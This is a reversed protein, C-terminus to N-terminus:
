LSFLLWAPIGFGTLSCARGGARGRLAVSIRGGWRLTLAGTAEDAGEELWHAEARALKRLHLLATRGLQGYSELAFPVARWLARGVLYRTHKDAEAERNAAGDHAATRASRPGSGPVAHPVTVDLNMCPMEASHAELDLVAEKRGTILDSGCFPCPGIPPAFAVGM